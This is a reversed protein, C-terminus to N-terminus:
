CLESHECGEKRGLSSGELSLVRAVEQQFRGSCDELIEIM